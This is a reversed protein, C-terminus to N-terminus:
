KLLDFLKCPIQNNELAIIKWLRACPVGRHFTLGLCDWEQTNSTNNITTLCPPLGDEIYFPCDRAKSSYGALFAVTRDRRCFVSVRFSRVIPANIHDSAQLTASEEVMYVIEEALRKLAAVEKDCDSHWTDNSRKKKGVQSTVKVAPLAKM